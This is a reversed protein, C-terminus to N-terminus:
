PTPQIIDWKNGYIDRLVLVKGYPEEVPGRIVELKHEMLHKYYSDFNDIHLFLFVKGGSQNGIAAIEQPKKAKVLLLSAGHDGKPKVRVFRKEPSVLTDELLDFQMVQTYFQIAEDYDHVLLAINVIDQM